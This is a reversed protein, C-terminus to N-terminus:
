MASEAALITFEVQDACKPCSIRELFKAKRAKGVVGCSPCKASVKEDMRTALEVRHSEGDIARRVLGMREWTAILYRGVNEDGGLAKHLEDQRTADVIELHSWVRHAEWMLSRAKGLKEALDESANKDIRRETRLLVELKDLSEVDFLLPAYDLIIEIGEVTDFEKGEYKREFQMMGDVFEWSASALKLAKDYLGQELATRANSIRSYYQDRHSEMEVKKMAM